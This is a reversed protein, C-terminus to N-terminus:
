LKAERLAGFSSGNSPSIDPIADPLDSNEGHALRFLPEWVTVARKTIHGNGMEPLHYYILKDASCELLEGAMGTEDELFIQVADLVTKM